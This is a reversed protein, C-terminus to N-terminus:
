RYSAKIRGWTTPETAEGCACGAGMAGVDVGCTNGGALCPSCDEVCLYDTAISCFKPDASFNGAAGGLGAICDVWDGGSNGYIDCCTLSPNSSTNVCGIARCNRGFAIVTNTVVPPTGTEFRLVNDFFFGTSDASFTCNAISASCDYFLMSATNFAARNMNSVCYAMAVNCMSFVAAGCSQASNRLFRCNTIIHAGERFDLAGSAIAATNSCFVCSDIVVEADNAGVAGGGGSTSNDSFLCNSAVLEAGGYVSIAGGNGAASNERFECGIVTLASFSGVTIAGGDGDCQNQQLVCDRITPSGGGCYVAGVSLWAGQITVCELASASDAPYFRFAGHPESLSGECDIVCDMPDCGGRLVIAKGNFFVDRNGSGTYTGAELLVTDGAAASDIGAQITPADGTGAPSINWTRALAPCSALAAVLAQVIIVSAWDHIASRKM